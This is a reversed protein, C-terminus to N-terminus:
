VDKLVMGTKLQDIEFENFFASLAGLDTCHSPYLNRINRKQLFDITKLTQAGQGKLHFGGVITKIREIGTVQVAHSVINCIGAHSCGTVISLEDNEVIALASDDPVFDPCDSDDIFPTAQAEFDNLRPIEGLFFINPSINFPKESSILDFRELIEAMPLDVGIESRDKRRYRKMFSKPHTVLVKDRLFRLGNGHDWHGHSLVVTDIDRMLDMGLLQANRLFVDSHGTDFLVMKGDSEIVYSLGHEALFKTGAMNETLVTLQM